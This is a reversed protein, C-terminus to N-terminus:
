GLPSDDPPVLDWYPTLDAPDPERDQHAFLEHSTPRHHKLHDLPTLHVRHTQIPLPLRVGRM